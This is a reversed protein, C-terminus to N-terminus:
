TEGSRYGLSLTLRGPLVHARRTKLKETATSDERAFTEWRESFDISHVEQAIEFLFVCGLDM